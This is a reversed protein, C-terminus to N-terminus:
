KQSSTQRHRGVFSWFAQTFLIQFSFTSDIEKIDEEEEEESVETLDGFMSQRCNTRKVVVLHTPPSHTFHDARVAVLWHYLALPRFSFFKKRHTNLTGVFRNSIFAFQWCSFRCLWLATWGIVTALKLRLERQSVLVQWTVWLSPSRSFRKM